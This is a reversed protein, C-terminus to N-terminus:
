PAVTLNFEYWVGAIYIQPKKVDVGGSTTIFCCFGDEIGVLADREEQTIKPLNIGYVTIYLDLFQKISLIWPRWADSLRGILGSPKGRMDTVNIIPDYIPPEDFSSAM